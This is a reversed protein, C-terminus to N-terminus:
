PQVYSNIAEVMSKSVICCLLDEQIKYINYLGIRQRYHKAAWNLCEQVPGKMVVEYGFYPTIDLVYFTLEQQSMIPRSIDTRIKGTIAQDKEISHSHM